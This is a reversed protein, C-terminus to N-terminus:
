NFPAEPKLSAAPISLGKIFLEKVLRAIENRNFTESNRRSQLYNQRTTMEVCERVTAVQLTNSTESAIVAALTSVSLGIGAVEASICFAALSTLFAFFLVTGITPSIGVVALKFGLQREVLRWKKKRKGYPLLVALETGPAIVHDPVVALLAQRLKYFAQQSTCDHSNRLRIKSVIIDCLEGFTAIHQLEYEGFRISFSKEVQKLIDDIDESDCDNLQDDNM